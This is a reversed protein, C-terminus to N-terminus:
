PIVMLRVGHEKGPKRHNKKKSQNMQTRREKELVKSRKCNAVHWGEISPQSIM